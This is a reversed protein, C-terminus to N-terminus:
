KSTTTVSTTGAENIECVAQLIEGIKMDGAKATEETKSFRNSRRKSKKDNKELARDLIIDGICDIDEFVIIKKDWKISNVENDENYTNEIFYRASNPNIYTTNTIHSTLPKASIGLMKNEVINFYNWAWDAPTSIKSFASKALEMAKTNKYLISQTCLISKSLIHHNKQKYIDEETIHEDKFSKPLQDHMLVIDAQYEDLQFSDIANFFEEASNFLPEADDELIVVKEAASSVAQELIKAHSILCCIEGLTLKKEKNNIYNTRYPEPLKSVELIDRKDIGEFFILDIGRKQTWEQIMRERRETARKLNICYVPINRTSM